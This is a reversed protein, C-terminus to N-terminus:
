GTRRDAGHTRAVACRLPSAPSIRYNNRKNKQKPVIQNPAVAEIRANATYRGIRVNGAFPNVECNEAVKRRVEEEDADKSQQARLTYLSRSLHALSRGVHLSFQFTSFM